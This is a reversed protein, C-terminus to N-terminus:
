RSSSLINWSSLDIMFM